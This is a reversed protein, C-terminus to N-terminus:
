HKSWSIFSCVLSLVINTYFAAIIDDIVIGIGGFFIGLGVTDCIHQSRRGTGFEDFLHQSEAIWFPKVIDFFRFLTFGIAIVLLNGDRIFAPAHVGFFCIPMAVFEDLIVCSPDNEGIEKEAIGCVVVAILILFIALFVAPYAGM